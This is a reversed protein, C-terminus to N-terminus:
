IAIANSCIACNNVTQLFLVFIAVSQAKNLLIFSQNIRQM